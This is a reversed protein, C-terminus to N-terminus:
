KYPNICHKELINLLMSLKDQDFGVGADPMGYLTIYYSFLPALTFSKKVTFQGGTSNFANKKNKGSLIDEIQKKLAMNEVNLEVNTYNLGYANMAGQLGEETIQFLLKL